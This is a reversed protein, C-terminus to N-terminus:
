ATIALHLVRKNLFSARHSLDSIKNEQAKLLNIAEKMCEESKPTVGVKLFTRALYYYSLYHSEGSEHVNQFFPELKATDGRGQIFEIYLEMSDLLKEDKKDTDTTKKLLLKCRKIYKLAKEYEEQYFLVHIIEISYHLVWKRSEDLQMKDIGEEYFSVSKEYNGENFYKIGYLVDVKGLLFLNNFEELIEQAPELHKVSESFMGIQAFSDALVIMCVAGYQMNGLSKYYGLSRKANEIALSYDGITYYVNATQNYGSALVRQDEFETKIVLSRNFCDLAEVQKGLNNLATGMNHLVAAIEKRSDYKIYIDLADELYHISKNYKELKNYLVGMYVYVYANSSDLNDQDALNLASYFQEEAEDFNGLLFSNWGKNAHAYLFAPDLITADDLLDRAENIHDHSQPFRMLHRARIYHDLAEPNSTPEVQFYKAIHNPLELNFQSLIKLLIDGKAANIETSKFTFTEEWQNIGRNMDQMALNLIFEKGEKLISGMLMYEVQMRRAVESFPLETDKYQDIETASPIRFTNIKTLDNVIDQTIGRCVFEDKVDGLNKFYLVGIAYVDLPNYTDMDVIQIGREQTERELDDNSQATYDLQNLYLKFLQCPEKMNKLKVFGLEKISFSTDRNIANFVPHSILIGDTPAVGEIRSGLNVTNGFLDDGKVVLDGMHLGIRIHVRDNKSHIKNRDILKKQIDIACNAAAEPKSFEAFVSDGIFKIVSGRFKDIATTLIQNHADLLQLAHNEDKGAMKSYGVIDTFMISSVKIQSEAM